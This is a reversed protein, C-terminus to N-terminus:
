RLISVNLLHLPLPPRATRTCERLPTEQPSVPPLGGVIAAGAEVM